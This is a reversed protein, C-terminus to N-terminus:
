PAEKPADPIEDTEHRHLDCRYYGPVLETHLHLTM